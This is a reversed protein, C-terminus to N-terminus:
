KAPMARSYQWISFSALRSWSGLWVAKEDGAHRYLDAPALAPQHRATAITGRDGYGGWGVGAVVLFCVRAM